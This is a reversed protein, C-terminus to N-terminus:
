YVEGYHLWLTDDRILKYGIDFVVKHKEIHSTKWKYELRSGNSEEPKGHKKSIKKRIKNMANEIEQDTMESTDVEWKVNAIEDSSSYAISLKGNYGCWKLDYVEVDRDYKDYEVQFDDGIKKHVEERSTQIPLSLEKPLSNSLFNIGFLVCIAIISVLLIMSQRKNLKIEKKAKYGCNPCSNAKDSIERGCEPCKILAM